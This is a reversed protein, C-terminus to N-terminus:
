DHSDMRVLDQETPQLINKLPWSHSASDMMNRTDSVLGRTEGMLGSLHPASNDVSNRITETTQRLNELSSQTKNLMSPVEQTVKGIMSEAHELSIRASQLAPRMDQTIGADVQRLIHNLRAHTDHLNDTLQRLNGLTQRIDGKPDNASKLIKNVEDLAPYLRERLDTAIQELGGGREFEIIANPALLPQDDSGRRTELISDGIVGEKKLYVVTDQRLLPFYRNEIMLEVQAQAKDDLDLKTVAGIKFGSLKVPMGIKFDQGSGAVFYVATKPTFFGKKVVSVILNIALGIVAILVLISVKVFLGKFREDKDALLKM